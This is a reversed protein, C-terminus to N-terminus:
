NASCSSGSAMRKVGVGIVVLKASRLKLEHLDAPSGSRLAKDQLEAMEKQERSIHLMVERQLAADGRAPSGTKMENCVSTQVRGILEQWDGDDRASSLGAALMSQADERSIKESLMGVVEDQCGADCFTPNSNSNSGSAHAKARLSDVNDEEMVKGVTGGDKPAKAADAVSQALVGCTVTLLLSLVVWSAKAMVHGWNLSKMM